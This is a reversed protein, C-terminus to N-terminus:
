KYLKDGEQLETVYIFESGGTNGQGARWNDTRVTSTQIIPQDSIQINVLHGQIRVIDNKQLRRLAHDINKNAAILHNSSVHNSIYEYGPDRNLEGDTYKFTMYTWQHSFKIKKLYREESLRGWVLVLDNTLLNDLGHGVNWFNPYTENIIVKAWIEYDAVPILTVAKGERDLVSFLEGKTGAQVPENSININDSTLEAIVPYRIAYYAPKVFFSSAVAILALFLLLRRNMM